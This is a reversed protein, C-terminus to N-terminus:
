TDSASGSELLDPGGQAYFPPRPMGLKRVSEPNVDVGTLSSSVGMRRM